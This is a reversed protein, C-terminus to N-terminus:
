DIRPTRNGLVTGDALTVSAIMGVKTGSKAPSYHVTVTDGPKLIKPAWGARSLVGPARGELAWETKGGKGDDISLHLWTHPNSWEWSTVVGTMVEVKLVDFQSNSHHATATMCTLLLLHLTVTRLYHLNM